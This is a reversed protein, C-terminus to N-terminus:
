KKEELLKRVDVALQILADLKRCCGWLAWILVIAMLWEDSSM